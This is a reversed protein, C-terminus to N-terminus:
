SEEKRPGMKWLEAPIIEFGWVCPQTLVKERLRPVGVRRVFDVKFSKLPSQREWPSGGFSEVAVRRLVPAESLWLHGEAVRGSFFLFFQVSQIELSGNGWCPSWLYIQHKLYDPDELSYLM